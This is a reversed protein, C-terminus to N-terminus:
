DAMLGALDSEVGPATKKALVAAKARALQRSLSAAHAATDAAINAMDLPDPVGLDHSEGTVAKAKQRTLMRRVMDSQRSDGGVTRPTGEYDKTATKRLLQSTLESLTKM